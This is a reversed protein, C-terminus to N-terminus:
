DQSTEVMRVDRLWGDFNVDKELLESVRDVHREVDFQSSYGMGFIGNKARGTTPSEKGTQTSTIQPLFGSPNRAYSLMPSVPSELLLNAKMPSDAPDSDPASFHSKVSKTPSPIKEPFDQPDADTIRQDNKGLALPTLPAGSAIELSDMNYRHSSVAGLSPDRADDRTDPVIDLGQDLDGNSPMPKSHDPVPTSCNKPLIQLRKAPLTLLPDDPIDELSASFARSRKGPHVTNIQPPPSSSINGVHPEVPILQRDEPSNASTLPPSTSSSAPLPIIPPPKARILMSDALPTSTELHAPFSPPLYPTEPMDAIKPIDGKVPSMELPRKSGTKDLDVPVIVESVNSAKSPKPSKTKHSPTPASGDRIAPHSQSGLGRKGIISKAAPKVVAFGLTHSRQPKETKGEAATTTVVARTSASSSGSTTDHWVESAMSAQWKRVKEKAARLTTPSAGRPRRERAMTYSQSLEAFSGQNPKQSDPVASAISGIQQATNTKGKLRRSEERKKEWEIWESEEDPLIWNTGEEPACPDAKSVSWHRGRVCGLKLTQSVRTWKGNSTEGGTANFVDQIEDRVKQVRHDFLPSNPRSPPSLLDHQTSLFLHVDRLFEVYSQQTGHATISTNEPLGKRSDDLEHFSPFVPTYLSM